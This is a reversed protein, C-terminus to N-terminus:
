NGRGSLNVNSTKIPAASVSVPGGSSAIPSRETADLVVGDGGAVAQRLEAAKAGVERGVGSTQRDPRAGRGASDRGRSGLTPIDDWELRRRRRRGTATPPLDEAAERPGAPAGRGENGRRDFELRNAPTGPLQPGGANARLFSLTEDRPGFRQITGNQLVLVKDMLALTQPRHTVLILTVGAEKLQRITHALADDGQNDLNANPEDLVVLKPDGYLARALAVRQRQGGSLIQGGWGIETDYGQPLRLIMEHLGTMQAAKVVMQPDPKPHLRAINEAVTGPFLENEQPMFGVHHGLEAGDWTFIDVGDLRVNGVSPKEVGVLLRSLTSKGAASPGVVGLSEGANLRFGIRQLIPSDSTPPQYYLNEVSLQGKPPPLPMSEQKESASKLVEEIARYAALAEIASRAQGVGMEIPQLARGLVLVTAIMMGPTMATTPDIIQLAAVSMIVMQILLRASKSVALFLGARDSAKAQLTLVQENDQYFRNLIASRMGMSEVVTANRVAAEAGQYARNSYGQAEQLPARTLRDNLIGIILMIVAGIIAAIGMPPNLFYIAALFIPVWPLDMLTMMGPGTLFSRLQALQRLVNPSVTKTRDLADVIITSLLIGAIRRDIWGSIRVFAYARVTDLAAQVALAGTAMGLLLLLTSESRSAMVRDFVQFMFLPLTLMLANVCFSFVGCAILAMYCARILRNVTLPEQPNM